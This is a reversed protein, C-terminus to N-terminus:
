GLNHGRGWPWELGLAGQAILALKKLPALGLASGLLSDACLDGGTELSGSRLCSGSYCLLFLQFRPSSKHSPELSIFLIKLHTLSFSFCELFCWKSCLFYVIM